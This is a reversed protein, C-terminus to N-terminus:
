YQWIDVDIGQEQIIEARASIYRQFNPETLYAKELVYAFVSQTHFNRFATEMKMVQKGQEDFFVMSPFYGLNLQSAWESIKIEQGDPKTIVDDSNPDLQVVDM